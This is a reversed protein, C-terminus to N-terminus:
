TLSTSLKTKKSYPFFHISKLSPIILLLFISLSFLYKLPLITKGKPIFGVIANLPQQCKVKSDLLSLFTREMRGELAKWNESQAKGVCMDEQPPEM